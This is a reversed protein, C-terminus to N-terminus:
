AYRQTPDSSGYTKAEPISHVSGPQDHGESVPVCYLLVALSIHKSGPVPARDALHALGLM